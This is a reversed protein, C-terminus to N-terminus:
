QFHLKQYIGQGRRWQKFLFCLPSIFWSFILLCSGDVKEQTFVFQLVFGIISLKLFDKFISYMMEGELGLKQFHSLAVAMLVAAAQKM